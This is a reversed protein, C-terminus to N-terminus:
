PSVAVADYLEVPEAVNKLSVSGMPSFSVADGGAWADVVARTVVVHDQTAQDAVRSAINVATGYYDGDRRLMPGTNVGAHLNWVGNAPASAVADLAFRVALTPDPFHALAGDGLSRVLRGGVPVALSHVFDALLLAQHAAAADGAEQSRRTYGSVDVFVVSQGDSPASVGGERLARETLQVINKFIAEDASREVLLWLLQRGLERFAYRATATGSLATIPSGTEAIAPGLLVDDIFDRQLDVIHETTQVMSRVIRVVRELPAGLETGRAVLEAIALEDARIAGDSRETGGLIPRLEDRYRSSDSREPGAVFQVPEPMLHDVYDFSLRGDAIADSLEDLAFGSEVLAMVLRARTIDSPRFRKREPLAGAAVLKELDVVDIGSARALAAVSLNRDEVVELPIRASSTV